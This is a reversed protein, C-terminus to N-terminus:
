ERKCIKGDPVAGTHNESGVGTGDATPIQPVGMIKHTEIRDLISIRKV